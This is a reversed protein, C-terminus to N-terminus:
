VKEFVGDDADDDADDPDDDVPKDLGAGKEAGAVNLLGATPM